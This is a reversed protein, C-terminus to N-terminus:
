KAFSTVIAHFPFIIKYVWFWLPIWLFLILVYKGLTLQQVPYNEYSAPNDLVM